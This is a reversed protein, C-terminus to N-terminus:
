SSACSPPRPPRRSSSRSGASSASAGSGPRARWSRSIAVASDAMRSRKAAACSWHRVGADLREQLAAATEPALGHGHAQRAGILMAMAGPALVVADGDTPAPRPGPGLVGWLALAVEEPTLDLVTGPGVLLLCREGCYVTAEPAEGETWIRAAPARALALAAGLWAPAEPGAM